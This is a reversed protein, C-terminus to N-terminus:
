VSIRYVEHVDPLGNRHEVFKYKYLKYLIRHFIEVNNKPVEKCIEVSNTVFVDM